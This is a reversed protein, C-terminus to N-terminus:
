GLASLFVRVERTSRLQHVAVRPPLRRLLELVAPRSQTPFRWVWQVFERDLGEKCGAPLDARSRRADRIRRWVIRRL